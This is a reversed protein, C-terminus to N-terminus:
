DWLLVPDHPVHEVDEKGVAGGGAAAWEDDVVDSVMGVSAVEYDLVRSSFWVLDQGENSHM